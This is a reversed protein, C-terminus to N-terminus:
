SGAAVEAVAPHLPDAGLSPWFGAGVVEDFATGGILASVMAGLLRCADVPRAAAHTPRSSEGAREAAAAPDGAWRIPVPALRMLSGNAAAEQDPMPDIAEGTRRFRDLQRSTTTGIDFCRGNSSLYGHDWWLLYRRLQDAPDLHGRDVLSEALCLAMSTDDTWAG